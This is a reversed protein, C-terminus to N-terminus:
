FCPLLGAAHHIDVSQPVLLMPSGRASLCSGVGWGHGYRLWVKIVVQGTGVKRSEMLEWM